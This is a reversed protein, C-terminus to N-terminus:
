RDSGYLVGELKMGCGDLKLLFSWKAGVEQDITGHWQDCAAVNQGIHTVLAVRNDEVRLLALPGITAAYSAFGSGENPSACTVSGDSKVGSFSIPEALEVGCEVDPRLTKETVDGGESCGVALVMLLIKWKRM